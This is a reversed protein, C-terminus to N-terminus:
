VDKGISIGILESSRFAFFIHIFWELIKEKAIRILWHIKLFLNKIVRKFFPFAFTFLNIIHQNDSYM